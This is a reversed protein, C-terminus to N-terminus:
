ENDSWSTGKAPVGDAQKKPNKPVADKSAKQREPYGEKPDSGDPRFQYKEKRENALSENAYASVPEIEFFGRQEWPRTDKSADKAAKSFDFFSGPM